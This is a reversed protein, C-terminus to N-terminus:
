NVNYWDGKYIKQLKQCHICKRTKNELDYTYPDYEWTHFGFFCKIKQKIM